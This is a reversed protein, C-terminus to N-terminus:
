ARVGRTWAEAKVLWKSVGKANGMKELCSKCLGSDLDFWRGKVALWCCACQQDSEAYAQSTVPIATYM